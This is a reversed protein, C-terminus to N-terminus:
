RDDTTERDVRTEITSKEHNSNSKAEEKSPPKAFQALFPANTSM